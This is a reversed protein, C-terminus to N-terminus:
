LRGSRRNTSRARPQIDGETKCEEKQGYNRPKGGSSYRLELKVYSSSSSLSIPESHSQDDAQSEWRHSGHSPLLSFLVYEDSVVPDVAMRISPESGGLLFDSTGIRSRLYRLIYIDVDSTRTQKDARAM